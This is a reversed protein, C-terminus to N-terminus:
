VRKGAIECALEARGEGSLPSLSERERGRHQARGVSTELDEWYVPSIILSGVECDGSGLSLLCLAGQAGSCPIRLDAEMRTEQHLYVVTNRSTGAM